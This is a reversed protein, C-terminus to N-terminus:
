VVTSSLYFITESLLFLYNEPHILQHILQFLFVTPPLSVSGVDLINAGPQLKEALLDLAIAHMHPASITESRGNPLPRDQMDAIKADFNFWITNLIIQYLFYLKIFLILPSRVLMYASKQALPNCNAQKHKFQERAGFCMFSQSSILYLAHIGTSKNGWDNKTHTFHDTAQTMLSRALAFKSPRYCM